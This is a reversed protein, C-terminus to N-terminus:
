PTMNNKSEPVFTMQHLNELAPILARTRLERFELANMYGMRGGTASLKAIKNGENPINEIRYMPHGDTDQINNIWNHMTDIFDTEYKTVFAQRDTESLKPMTTKLNLALVGKEDVEALFPVVIPGLEETYNGETDCYYDLGDRIKRVCDGVLPGVNTSLLKDAELDIYSLLAKTLEAEVKWILLLTPLMRLILTEANESGYREHEQKLSENLTIFAKDLDEWHDASVVEKNIIRKQGRELSAERLDEMRQRWKEENIKKILEDKDIPNAMSIEWFSCFNM